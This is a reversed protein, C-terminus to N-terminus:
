KTRSSTRAAHLRRTVDGARIQDFCQSGQPILTVPLFARVDAEGGLKVTFVMDGHGVMPGDSDAREFTNQFQHGGMMVKGPILKQFFEAKLM